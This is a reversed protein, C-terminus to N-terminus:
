LSFSWQAAPLSVQITATDNITELLEIWKGNIKDLLVLFRPMKTFKGTPTECSFDWTGPWTKGVIAPM